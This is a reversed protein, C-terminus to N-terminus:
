KGRRMKEAAQATKTVLAAYTPDQAAVAKMCQTCKSMPGRHVKTKQYTSM